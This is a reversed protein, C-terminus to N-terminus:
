TIKEPNLEGYARQKWATNLVSVVDAPKVRDIKDLREELSDIENLYISERALREMTAELNESELILSAKIFRRTIDMEKESPGDTLLAECCREVEEYCAQRNKPDCATQISWLGCDSYIELHSQIGYVLGREERVTQFLRSNTGGGLLHNCVVLAPYNKSTPAFAPMDWQLCSQAIGYQLQSNKHQFQPAPSAPRDGQPINVLTNCADIIDQHSIGGVCSVYIRSGQLISALYHKLQKDTASQICTEDGLIPWGIPHQPWVAATTTELLVEEPDDKVMAMEQLVIEKEVNVDQQSFRPQTLMECLLGLLETASANPVTGYFGTLERGTQANVQGGMAEFIDALQKANYQPTGKFLLHELFHAYGNEHPQQHRSGNLLWISVANTAANERYDTIVRVGNTLTSQEIM